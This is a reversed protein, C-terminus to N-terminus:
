GAVLQLWFNVALLVIILVILPLFITQLSAVFLAIYDKRDLTRHAEEERQSAYDLWDIDKEESLKNNNDNEEFDTNM